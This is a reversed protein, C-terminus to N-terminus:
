GRARGASLKRRYLHLLARSLSFVLFTVLALVVPLYHLPTRPSFSLAEFSQPELEAISQYAESLEDRDLAQFNRGGTVEAVRELTRMDLAKEGTTRPDGIAITYIRIGQSQAVKAADIPPVKSGSDNGDTLMILVRNESDSNRFLKIALGIADGFVTSHGAMGIETENLLTLWTKHDETFPVQLYPASGFVILGLRDHERQRSLETLVSKVAVLRDTKTGDEALFDEEEMSGSLDVAIMLDRGSKIREIPDGVWQPNAMGVVLCCWLLPLMLRQAISRELVMAGQRPREGSLTQLKVFFPVRVSQTPQRFPEIFRMVLPLPLLLLAYPFALEIM